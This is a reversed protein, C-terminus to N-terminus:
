RKRSRSLGAQLVDELPDTASPFWGESEGGGAQIIVAQHRKLSELLEERSESEEVPDLRDGDMLYARPEPDTATRGIMINTTRLDGARIREDAMRELMRQILDYDRRKFKREAILQEVTEGYIREKIVAPRDPARAEQGLLSWLWRRLRSPEGPISVIGLVKPGVGAAALRSSVRRDQEAEEAKSGRLSFVVMKIVAGPVRPHAYVAGFSGLGLAKLEKGELYLKNWRRRIGEIQLASTGDATAVSGSGSNTESAFNARSPSLRPAESGSPEWAAVAPPTERAEGAQDFVSKTARAGAEPSAAKSAKRSFDETQALVQLPSIRSPVAPEAPGTAPVSPQTAGMAAVAAPSPPLALPASPPAVIGRPVSKVQPVSIRAGWGPNPASTLLFALLGPFIKRNVKEKREIAAGPSKPTKM